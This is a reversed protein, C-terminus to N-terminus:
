TIDACLYMVQMPAYPKIGIGANEPKSFLKNIEKVYDSLPRAVGSGLCYVKNNRGKEGILYFARGADESFLFDWKQECKTFEPTNGSLNEKLIYM